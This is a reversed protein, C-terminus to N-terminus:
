VASGVTRRKPSVPGITAEAAEQALHAAVEGEPMPRGFLWGQFQDCGEQRLRDRQVETEVGEATTTIGLSSCLGTVARVIAEADSTEGLDRVFSQDIKVKDFAFRRLYGLSSYGTGFDDMAIRVGFDRLHALTELTAETDVLLIGETIELELRDPELGSRGLAALVDLPLMRTRIQVPSINVAVRLRAPWGAAARTAERLVWAGIEGILGIDEALPIFDLPSVLGRNPHRWRILAEFGETRGSTAGVVPQYFLEFQDKELAVRLDVELERRSKLGADMAPEFFRAVGRGESKARHLALDAHALLPESEDADDPCVAIGICASIVIRVGDIEFPEAIAEGIRRALDSAAMPQDLRTQAVAFEDGGIRGVTEWEGCCSVIRKAVQALLRDGVSHGLGDNVTKFHDLDVHLLAVQAAGERDTLSQDLRERFFARNALGTAGDYLALQEMKAEVRRRATIDEHTIVAGGDATPSATIVVTRGDAYDDVRQLPRGEAIARRFLPERPEISRAGDARRTALATEVTMGVSIEGPRFGYMHLFSDNWVVFREEADVLFFGQPMTAIATQLRDYQRRLREESDAELRRRADGLEATLHAFSRALIGIEDKRALLSADLPRDLDELSRLRRVHDTIREIPGTIRRSVDGALALVLALLVASTTAVMAYAERTSEVVERRTTEDLRRAKTELMRVARFYDDDIICLDLRRGVLIQHADVLARQTAVLGREGLVRDSLDAFLDVLRDHDDARGSVLLVPRMLALEADIDRLKEARRDTFATLAAESGLSGVVDISAIFGSLDSRLHAVGHESMVPTPAEAPVEGAATSAAPDLKTLIAFADRLDGKAADGAAELRGTLLAHRACADLIAHGGEVFRKEVGAIREVDPGAGVAEARLRLDAAVQTATLDFSELEHRAAEIGTCEEAAARVSTRARRSAQTIELVDSLLPATVDISRRLTAGVADVYHLGIWGSALLVATSLTMVITMRTRLRHKRAAAEAEGIERGAAEIGGEGMASM